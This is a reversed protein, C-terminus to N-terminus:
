LGLTFKQIAYADEIVKEPISKISVEKNRYKETDYDEKYYRSMIEDSTLLPNDERSLETLDDIEDDIEDIRREIRARRKDTMAFELENILFERCNELESIDDNHEGYVNLLHGLNAQHTIKYPKAEIAEDIQEQQPSAKLVLRCLGNDSIVKGSADPHDTARVIEWLKGKQTRGSKIAHPSVEEVNRLIVSLDKDYKFKPLDAPKVLAYISQRYTWVAVAGNKKLYDKEEDGLLIAQYQNQNKM